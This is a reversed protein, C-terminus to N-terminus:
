RWVGYNLSHIYSPTDINKGITDEARFFIPQQMGANIFIEALYDDTATLLYIRAGKDEVGDQVIYGLCAGVDDGNISRGTTGYPIFRRGNYVLTEYGDDKDSPNIYKEMVFAKPDDPLDYNIGYSGRQCGCMMLTAPILLVGLKSLKMCVGGHLETKKSYDYYIMYFIM